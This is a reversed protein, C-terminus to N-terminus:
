SGERVLRFGVFPEKRTRPLWSRRTATINEPGTGKDSFAGGRIIYQDAPISLLSNGPYPAATTSTWEWANGILDLLGGRSSAGQPHSGVPELSNSEVNARDDLWQNGWPYLTAQPGNRAAYEWEEETPLRYKVNDRTSRWQAFAEADDLSVGTVPWKEQGAPPKGDRWYSPLSHKTEKGFAEYEANTVETKDMSFTKVVVERAPYQSLDYTNKSDPSVDSRGMQFAGGEVKVLNPM